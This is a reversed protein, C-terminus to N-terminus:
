CVLDQLAIELRYGIGRRGNSLSRLIVHGKALRNKEFHQTMSNGRHRGVALYPKLLVYLQAPAEVGNSICLPCFKVCM